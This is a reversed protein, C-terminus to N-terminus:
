LNVEGKKLGKYCDSCLLQGSDIQLIEEKPYKAGCIECLKLGLNAENESVIVKKLNNLGTWIIFIPFTIISYLMILFVIDMAVVKAWSGQTFLVPIITATFGVFLIVFFVFYVRFTIRVLSLKRIIIGLIYISLLTINIFDAWMQAVGSAIFFFHFIGGLTLVIIALLCLNMKTKPKMNEVKEIDGL